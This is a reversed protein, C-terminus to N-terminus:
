NTVFPSARSYTFHATRLPTPRNVLNLLIVLKVVTPLLVLYHHVEERLPSPLPLARRRWTPGTGTWKRPDAGQTEKQHKARGSSYQGRRQLGENEEEPRTTAYVRLDINLNSWSRKPALRGPGPDFSTSGTDALPEAAVQPAMDEPTTKPGGKVPAM